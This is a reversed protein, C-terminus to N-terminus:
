LLRMQICTATFWHISFIQIHCNLLEGLLVFLSWWNTFRVQDFLNVCAAVVCGYELVVTAGGAFLTERDHQVVARAM